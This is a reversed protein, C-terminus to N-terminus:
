LSAFVIVLLTLCDLSPCSLLPCPFVIESQRGLNLWTLLVILLSPFVIGKDSLCVSCVALCHLITKCVKLMRCSLVFLNDQQFHTERCSLVFLNDQLSVCAKPLVIKLSQRACWQFSDALCNSITKSIWDLSICVIFFQRPLM